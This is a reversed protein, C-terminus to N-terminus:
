VGGFISFFVRVLLWRWPRTRDRGDIEDGDFLERSM